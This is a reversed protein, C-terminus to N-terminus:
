CFFVNSKAIQWNEIQDWTVWNEEFSHSTDGYDDDIIANSLRYNPAGQNPFFEYIAERLEM